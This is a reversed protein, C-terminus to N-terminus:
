LSLKRGHDLRKVLNQALEKQRPLYTEIIKTCDDIDHGTFSAIEPVPSGAKAFRVVATRRLDMFWLSNYDLENMLERFDHRFTDVQYPEGTKENIVLADAEQEEFLAMLQAHLDPLVPPVVTVGTKSQVVTFTQADPDYDNKSLTLIDGMRQGLDYALWVALAISKRGRSGAHKIFAFVQEETWLVDRKMPTPINMKGAPNSTILDCDLAHNLIRRLTQYVGYATREKVSGTSPDEEYLADIFARCSSKKMVRVHPHNAQESWQLVYRMLNTYFRQTGKSKRKFKLNDKKFDEWLWPLTGRIETPDVFQARAERLQDYKQNLEGAEQSAIGLVIEEPTGCPVDAALRVPPLAYRKQLRAPLQWYFYVRVEGKKNRKERRVLYRVKVNRMSVGRPLCSRIQSKMM